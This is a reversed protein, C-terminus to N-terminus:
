DRELYLALSPFGRTPLGGFAILRERHSKMSDFYSRKVIQALM